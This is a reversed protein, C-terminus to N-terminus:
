GPEEAKWRLLCTGVAMGGGFGALLVLDGDKLAGSRAAHDLTVAMSAAGSNGYEELTLHTSAREFGIQEALKGLLVGNAQHPVFHAVDDHHVGTRLLLEKVAQPVTGLAFETVERGRMRLVHGIEDVTEHSAPRRSGGAEVVLLSSQEGYGVLDTGLIGYPEAVPGVLAAGAGDGLLVTTSRDAPDIFRSWLDAAIVLAHAGPRTAVLGNAVALAYAFGSCAINIDFCAARRAGIGVQVLSSTPPLPADGTSTAVILFDLKEAPFGIRDLTARAAHVALDSTAEEPAAYRRARIKTKREIWEGTVGFRPALEANTVSRAPVYSGTALIGTAVM